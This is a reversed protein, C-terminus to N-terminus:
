FGHHGGARSEPEHPVFEGTDTLDFAPEAPRLPQNRHAELLKIYAGQGLTFDSLRMYENPAHFNEDERQFGFTVLDRGVLGRMYALVPVGGGVYGIAPPQGFVDTLVERAIQFAPDDDSYKIGPTIPRAEYEVTIGEPLRDRVHREILEGIKTAHQSTVLRSTIWVKAVNPVVAGVGHIGADIGTVELTPRLFRILQPDYGEEGVLADLGFDRALANPDFPLLAIEARDAETIEDVDDYFGEVAVSGDDCHFSAVIEAAAVAANPVTGGYIGSHVAQNAGTLTFSALTAGKLGRWMLGQDDSQMMADMSYAYDVGLWEAHDGVWPLLTPSGLEEQGELFLKVNVPLSGDVAMMAEIATVGMMLAGKCDIAGRGTLTGNIVQPEFPPTDWLEAKAPQVDFHGYLLVTPQGPAHMWEATVVPYGGAPHVTANDMGIATLKDTLWKGADLMVQANAPDSAVTPFRVLEAVEGVHRGMETGLWDLRADTM